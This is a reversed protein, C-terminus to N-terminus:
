SARVKPGTLNPMKPMWCRKAMNPAVMRTGAMVPKFVDAVRSKAPTPVRSNWKMELHFTGANRPLEKAKMPPYRDMLCSPM